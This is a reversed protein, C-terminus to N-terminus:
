ISNKFFPFLNSLARTHLIPWGVKECNELDSSLNTVASEGAEEMHYNLWRLIIDEPSMSLLYNFDEGEDLLLFLEPHNVASVESLICEKVM